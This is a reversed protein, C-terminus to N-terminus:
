SAAATSRPCGRIPPRLREGERPLSLRRVLARQQADGPFLTPGDPLEDELYELVAGSEYPSFDGDTLAPVKARPNIALFDDKRLDGDSASLIKVECDAGKHELALHVRWGFPSGSLTLLRMSMAEIGM